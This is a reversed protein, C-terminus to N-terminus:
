PASEAEALAAMVDGAMLSAELALLFCVFSLVQDVVSDDEARPAHDEPGRAVRETPAFAAREAVPRAERARRPQLLFEADSLPVSRTHLSDNSRPSPLTYEYAM